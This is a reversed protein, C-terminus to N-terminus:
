GGGPHPPAPVNLYQKVAHRFAEESAPHGELRWDQAWIGGSQAKDFWILGLLHTRTVGAFLGPIGAAQGALPGVATESILIPKDTIKRIASITPAFTNGFTMYREALYGDIGAWTVYRAGPWWDRIAPGGEPILNVTWLWTVNDAGVVRFVTVIRRWAQVFVKPSTNTYGWSYWSGNMEHGFSIVVPGGFERVAEAFAELYGDQDGAAISALSPGTPDMDDVVTAGHAKAQRALDTAFPEGWYSYDLVLNPQSGIVKAFRAVQGYSKRQVSPEFVGFYSAPTAPLSVRVPRSGAPSLIPQPANPNRYAPNVCGSIVTAIVAATVAPVAVVRAAFAPPFRWM